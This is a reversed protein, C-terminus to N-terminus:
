LYTQESMLKSVLGHYRILKMKNTAWLEAFRQPEIEFLQELPIKQLEREREWERLNDIAKKVQQILQWHKQADEPVEHTSRETALAKIGKIYFTDIREDYAFRNPPVSKIFDQIIGVLEDAKKCLKSFHMIQSNRQATTLFEAKNIAEKKKEVVAEVWEHTCDMPLPIEGLDAFEKLHNYAEQAECQSKRLAEDIKRLEEAIIVTKPTNNNTEEMM